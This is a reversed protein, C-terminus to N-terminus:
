HAGDLWYWASAKGEEGFEDQGEVICRLYDEQAADFREGATELSVHLDVGSPRTPM